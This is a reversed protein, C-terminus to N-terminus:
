QLLMEKNLVALSARRIYESRPVVLSKLAREPLLLEVVAAAGVQESEETKEWSVEYLPVFQNGLDWPRVVPRFESEMAKVDVSVAALFQTALVYAANTNLHSKPMTYKAKVAALYTREDFLPLNKQIWSLKNSFTGSYVYNKTRITGFHGLHEAVFPTAITLKTLDPARFPVSEPLNLQRCAWNAEKLLVELAAAKYAETTFVMQRMESDDTQQLLRDRDPVILARRRLYRSNVNMQLLRREPEVLWVTALTQFGDDSRPAAEISAAPEKWWVYYVPVFKNGDDRAHFEVRCDREMAAVDVGAAVLWNTALKYAANTNMQNKPASYRQRILELYPESERRNWEIHGLKNNESAFYHYNTTSITGFGGEQDSWAPPQIFIEVLDAPEIPLKEPLGLERAVRNADELLVKLAAQRYAETTFRRYRLNLTLPDVAALDLPTAAKLSGGIVGFALLLIVVPSVLHSFM